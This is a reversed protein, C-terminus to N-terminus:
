GNGEDSGEGEEPTDSIPKGGNGLMAVYNILPIVLDGTLGTKFVRNPLSKAAKDDLGLGQRIVNCVTDVNQAALGARVGALGDHMRSLNQLAGLTPKLVLTESEWKKTASNFTALKIEVEGESLDSM